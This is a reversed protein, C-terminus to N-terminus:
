HTSLKPIRVHRRAADCAPCDETVPRMHPCLFVASLDRKRKRQGAMWGAQYGAAYDKNGMRGRKHKAAKVENAKTFPNM